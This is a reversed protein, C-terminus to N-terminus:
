RKSLGKFSLHRPIPIASLMVPVSEEEATAASNCRERDPSCITRRDRAQDSAPRRRSPVHDRAEQTGSRRHAAAKVPLRFTRYRSSSPLGACWPNGRDPGREENFCQRKLLTAARLFEITAMTPEPFDKFYQDIASRVAAEIFDFHESLPVGDAAYRVPELNLHTYDRTDFEAGLLEGMAATDFVICFGDPAYRTWQSELGNAREFDSNASHTTFSTTFADVARDPDNKEFTAQYLSAIFRRAHAIGGGRRYYLNTEIGASRTKVEQNFLTSVSQLLLPKLTAIEEQTSIASIHPGCRTRNCFPKSHSRGPTISFSPINWRSLPPASIEIDVAAMRKM